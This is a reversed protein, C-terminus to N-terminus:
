DHPSGHYAKIGQPQDPAVAQAVKKAPKVAGSGLAGRPAMALAGVELFRALDAGRGVAEDSNPDVRGAYVDGPLTFGGWAAQAMKAPWTMALKDLLGPKRMTPTFNGFAGIGGLAGSSRAGYLLGADAM